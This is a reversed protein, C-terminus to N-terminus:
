LMRRQVFMPMEGPNSNLREFNDLEFDPSEFEFNYRNVLNAIMLLQEFYAINRGICARPGVSFPLHAQMMRQKDGTIWRDPSFVEPNEFYRNDRLMTYTPVSVTVGEKVFRGAIMRGGAPVIRPLGISQAPRLRLSEEICAKLYPLQAIGDYTPIEGEPIVSDLEQRLKALVQHHKYILFITSTLASTTTDSGANMIVGSEALIEGLELKLEEGKNNYLLKAFIDDQPETKSLRKMTHHYVIDEFRAGAKRHPHLAFLKKTYPLLSTEMGLSTNINMSKHLAQIMPTQYVRGDKTEANVIDNGRIMCDLSEGYLLKSILDITFYNLYRRMNITEGSAVRKDVEDNLVGIMSRAEGEFGAITKQAFVHALKKRKNQHEAKDRTNGMDRHVGAGGDYWGEKLMNAGHGYIDNM